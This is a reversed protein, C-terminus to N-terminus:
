LLLTRIKRAHAILWDLVRFIDVRIRIRLGGLASVNNQSFTYTGCLIFSATLFNFSINNYVTKAVERERSRSRSRIRIVLLM